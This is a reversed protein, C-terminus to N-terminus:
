AIESLNRPIDWRPALAFAVYNVIRTRWNTLWGVGHGVEAAIDAADDWWEEANTVAWVADEPFHNYLIDVIYTNNWWRTWQEQAKRVAQRNVYEMRIEFQKTWMPSDDHAMHEASRHLKLPEDSM